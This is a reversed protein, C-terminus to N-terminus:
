CQPDLVAYCKWPTKHKKRRTKVQKM